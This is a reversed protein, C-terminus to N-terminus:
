TTYGTTSKMDISSGSWDADTLIQIPMGKKRKFYLGQASANKLYRLIKLVAQLHENTPDHVSRSIFSM